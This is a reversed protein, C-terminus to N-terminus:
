VHASRLPDARGNDVETSSHRQARLLRWAFVGGLGNIAV